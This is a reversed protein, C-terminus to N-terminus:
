RGITMKNDKPLCNPSMELIKPVLMSGSYWYKKDSLIQEFASMIKEAFYLGISPVGAHKVSFCRSELGPGLRVLSVAAAATVSAM